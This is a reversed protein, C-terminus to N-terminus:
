ASLTALPASRGFTLKLLDDLERRIEPIARDVSDRLDELMRLQASEGDWRDLPRSSLLSLCALVEEDEAWQPSGSFGLHHRKSFDNALFLIAATDREEEPASRPDSHYAMANIIARPLKQEEGFLRGATEHDCGFVEREARNLQFDSVHSLRLLSRYSDPFESSLLIKGVDHLLGASYAHPLDPLRLLNTLLEALLGCAFSHSWLHRLDFGSVLENLESVAGLTQALFRIRDLGLLVMAHEIDTVESELRFFSSNIMRLVKAHLGPDRRVLVALETLNAHQSRSAIQFSQSVSRLVPIHNLSQIRDRVTEPHPRPLDRLGPFIEAFSGPASSPFPAVHESLMEELAQLNYRWHAEFPPDQEPQVEEPEEVVPEVAIATSEAERESLPVLETSTPESLRYRQSHKRFFALFARIGTKKLLLGRRM